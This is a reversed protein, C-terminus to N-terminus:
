QTYDKLTHYKKFCPHYCLPINCDPCYYATEKRGRKGTQRKTTDACVKCVRTVMTKKQTSPIRDVFHRGILRSSTVSGHPGHSPGAVDGPVEAGVLEEGCRMLFHSFHQRKRQTRSMNFLVYANVMARATLHFFMKKWWKMSKRSYSYYSVYQDNLDVGIKHRNYDLICDPKIKMIPGGKAKAKVETWSAAHKTSLLFVDRKDKYKCATMNGRHCFAMEHLQLPQERWEQPLGRRNSMVTGVVRTKKLYFLDAVTPSTFFRDMYVTHWKEFYPETLETVIQEVTKSDGIYPIMRLAYGTHADCLMYIKMGYKDPKDKNFVRFHIRGRFGCTGEDITLEEDPYFSQECIECLQKFYPRLKFFADYNEQGRPIYHANDNLHLCSYIARFRDRPMIKRPFSTNIIERTSWYSDITEKQVLTMHIIISFFHKLEQLTVPKWNYLMSGSKLLGRRAQKAKMQGAYRNTETKVLKWFDDNFFISFCDFVSSNEDVPALVRTVEEFVPNEPPRERVEYTWGNAEDMEKKTHELRSSRSRGSSCGRGRGRSGGRRTRSARRVQTRRNEREPVEISIHPQELDVPVDSGM